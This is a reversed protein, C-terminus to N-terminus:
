TLPHNPQLYIFHEIPAIWALYFSSFARGSLLVADWNVSVVVVDAKSINPQGKREM